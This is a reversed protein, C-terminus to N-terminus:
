PAVVCKLAYLSVEGSYESELGTADISKMAFYYTVYQNLGYIEYSLAAPDSVSIEKTYEKSALGVYIKYGALEGPALPTGDTRASPATWSLSAKVCAPGPSSPSPVDPNGNDTNGPITPAEPSSDKLTQFKSGCSILTMSILCFIIKKL